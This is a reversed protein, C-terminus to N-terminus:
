PEHLLGRHQPILTADPYSVVAGNIQNTITQSLPCGEVTLEV